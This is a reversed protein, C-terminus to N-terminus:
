REKKTGRSRARRESRSGSSRASSSGNTAASPTLEGTAGIGEPDSLEKMLWVTFALMPRMPLTELVKESPQGSCLKALAAITKERNKVAEDLAEQVQEPDDRDLEEDDPDDVDDAIAAGRRARVAERNMFAFFEELQAESPEPIEGKAGKMDGAYKTLDYKLAEIDSANFSPM